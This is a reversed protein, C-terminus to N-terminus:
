LVCPPFRAPRARPGRLASPTPQARERHKSPPRHLNEWSYSLGPFWFCPFCHPPCPSLVLFSLTAPGASSRLVLHPFNLRRSSASCGSARRGDAPERAPRPAAPRLRGGRAEEGAGAPAGATRARWATERWSLCRSLCQSTQLTFNQSASMRDRFKLTM